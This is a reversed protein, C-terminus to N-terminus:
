SDEGDPIRRAHRQLDIAEPHEAHFALWDRECHVLVKGSVELYVNETDGRLIVDGTETFTDLANAATQQDCGTQHAVSAIALMNVLHREEDTLPRNIPTM